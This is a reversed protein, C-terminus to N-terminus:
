PLFHSFRMIQQIRLAFSREPIAQNLAFITTRSRLRVVTRRSNLSRRYFLFEFLFLFGYTKVMIKELFNFTSADYDVGRGKQETTGLHPM